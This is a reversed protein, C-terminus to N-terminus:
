GLSYFMELFSLFAWTAERQFSPLLSKRKCRFFHYFLSKRYSSGLIDGIRFYLIPGHSPPIVFWPERGKALFSYIVLKVRVQEVWRYLPCGARLQDNSLICVVHKHVRVSFSNCDKTAWYSKLLFTSRGLDVFISLILVSVQRFHVPQYLYYQISLLDASDCERQCFMASCLM